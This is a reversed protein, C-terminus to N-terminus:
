GGAPDLPAGGVTVAFPAALDAAKDAEPLAATAGATLLGLAIRSVPRWPTM